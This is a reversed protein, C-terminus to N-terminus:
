KISDLLEMNAVQYLFSPEVIHPPIIDTIGQYLRIKCRNNWLTTLIKSKDYKSKTVVWSHGKYNITEVYDQEKKATGSLEGKQMKNWEYINLWKSDSSIDQILVDIYNLNKASPYDQIKRQEYALKTTNGYTNTVKYYRGDLSFYYTNWYNYNYPKISIKQTLIEGISDRSIPPDKPYKKNLEKILEVMKEAKINEDISPDNFVKDFREIDDSIEDQPSSCSFIVCYLCCWILFLLLSKM